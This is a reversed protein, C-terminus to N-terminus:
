VQLWYPNKWADDELIEPHDQLIKDFNGSQFSVDKYKNWAGAKEIVGLDIAVDLLGSYKSVGSAWYLCM